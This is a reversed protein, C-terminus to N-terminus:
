VSSDPPCVSLCVYVCMCVCFLFLCISQFSGAVMVVDRFREISVIPTVWQQSKGVICMPHRPLPLPSPLPSNVRPLPIAQLFVSKWYGIARERERKGRGKKKEELQRDRNVFLSVSVIGYCGYSFTRKGERERRRQGEKDMAIREMERGRYM